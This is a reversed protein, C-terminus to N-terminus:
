EVPSVASWTSWARGGRAPPSIEEHRYTVALVLRVSGSGFALAFISPSFLRRADWARRLWLGGCVPPLRRPTWPM